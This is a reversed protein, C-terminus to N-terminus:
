SRGRFEASIKTPTESDGGESKFFHTVPSLAQQSMSDNPRVSVLKLPRSFKSAEARNPPAPSTCLDKRLMMAALILYHEFIPNIM